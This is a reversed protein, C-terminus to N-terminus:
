AVESTENIVVQADKLRPGIFWPWAEGVRYDVRIRRLAINLLAVKWRLPMPIRVLTTATLRLMWMNRLRVKMEPLESM